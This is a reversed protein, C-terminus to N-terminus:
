GRLPSLSENTDSSRFYADTVENNLNGADPQM